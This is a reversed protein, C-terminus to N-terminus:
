GRRTVAGVGGGEDAQMAVPGGGDADGDYCATAGKLLAALGVQDAESHWSGMRGLALTYAQGLTNLRAPATTARVAGGARQRKGDPLDETSTSM